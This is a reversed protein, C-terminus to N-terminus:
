NTQINTQTQTYTHTCSFVAHTMEKRDLAIWHYLLLYKTPEYLLVINSVGTIFIQNTTDTQGGTTSDNLNWGM